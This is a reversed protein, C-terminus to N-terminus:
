FYYDDCWRDIKLVCVCVCFIYSTKKNCLRLKIVWHLHRFIAAVWFLFFMLFTSKSFLYRNPDSVEDSNENTHWSYFAFAFLEELKSAHNLISNLRNAWLLTKENSNFTLRSFFCRWPLVIYYNIVGQNIDRERDIEIYWPLFRCHIGILNIIRFFRILLYNM